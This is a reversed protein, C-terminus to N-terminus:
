QCDAMVHMSRIQPDQIGGMIDPLHLQLFPDRTKSFGQANLQQAVETCISEILQQETAASPMTGGMTILQNLARISGQMGTLYSLGRFTWKYFPTYVRNLLFIASAAAKVFDACALYAAGAEGRKVSRPFNYQGSQSMIACRAALKKRLVDNPYFGKLTQRIQTFKGEPDTFIEGNTAIALFNEPINMWQANTTPAGAVNTYRQYFRNISFVGVRGRGEPTENRTYGMFEGPLSDYAAQLEKGIAAAVDEDVWLCFGPGFDHDQSIEDDYGFCESGEGVLGAAIRNEYAAFRQRIMPRGYTEYYARSLEMGKM